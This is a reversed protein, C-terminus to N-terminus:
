PTTGCLVVAGQNTREWVRPSYRTTSFADLYVERNRDTFFVM